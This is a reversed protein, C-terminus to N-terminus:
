KKFKISTSQNNAVFSGLSSLCSGHRGTWNVPQWGAMRGAPGSKWLGLERGTGVHWFGAWRFFPNSLYWNLSQQGAQSYHLTDKNATSYNLHEEVHESGELEQPQCVNFSMMNFPCSNTSRHIFMSNICSSPSAKGEQDAMRTWPAMLLAVIQLWLLFLLLLLIM